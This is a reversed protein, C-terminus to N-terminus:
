VVAHRGGLPAGVPTAAAVSRRALEDDGRVRSLITRGEWNGDPAVGYAACFLPADPGLVQRQACDLALGYVAALSNSPILARWWRIVYGDDDYHSPKVLVLQFRRKSGVKSDPLIDVGPVCLLGHGRFAM